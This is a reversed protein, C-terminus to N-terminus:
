QLIRQSNADKRSVKQRMQRFCSLLARLLFHKVILGRKWILRSSVGVARRQQLLSGLFATEFWPLISLYVGLLRRTTGL